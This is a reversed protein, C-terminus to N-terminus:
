LFVYCTLVRDNPGVYCSRRPALRLTCSSVKEKWEYTDEHWGEDEDEKDGEGWEKELKSLDFEKRAKRGETHVLLLAGLVLVLLRM